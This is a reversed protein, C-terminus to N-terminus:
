KRTLSNLNEACHHFLKALLVADGNDIKSVVFYVISGRLGVLYSEELVADAIPVKRVAVIETLYWINEKYRQGGQDM